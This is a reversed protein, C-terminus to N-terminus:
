QNSPSLIIHAPPGQMILVHTGVPIVPPRQVVTVRDGRNTRVVYAIKHRHPGSVVHHSSVVVGPVNQNVVVPTSPVTVTTPTTTTVVTTNPALRNFPWPGQACSALLGSALVIPLAFHHIKM